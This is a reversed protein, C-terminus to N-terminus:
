ANGANRDKAVAVTAVGAVSEGAGRVGVAAAAVASARLAPNCVLIERRGEREIRVRGLETLVEIAADRRARDRLQGPGLRLVDRTSVDVGAVLWADLLRADSWAQPEDLMDLVRFAEELHWRALLVAREMTDPPIAGYAGEFVHLCGAIRAANEASKAAFDCVAAYDGFPKLQSEIEDHYYRWVAFAGSSFQLLPLKLRGRDDLALETDLLEWIRQHFASLNPMGTPPAQYFREGMTSLPAAVLYRALFGSGRTLGGGRQTLERLVSPQVMLSVTLRRGELHVSQAQKRDQHIAGGDWLRNLGAMFGLLSERGMGQSGTVMGGEDSWLAASPHGAALMFALSQPNVDEYRLRPAILEVPKELAHDALRQRLRAAEEPKKHVLSKIAAKLGDQEAAWGDLASKSRAIEERLLDARSLEWEGLPAALMKDAATKREGSQAIILFNLSLPGVLQDDRAVDALGQTALSVVALASSAVLAVPQQGYAQYERVAAGVMGPLAELPYAESHAAARDLSQPVPWETAFTASTATASPDAQVQSAQDICHRVAAAGVLRHLDNFDTAGKPRAAGFDPLALLGGVSRAAERAKALGPNGPTAVDDDACLILRLAPHRARLAQAVPLLNGANFAVVVAYGTSQFISAGTAYGEAICLVEDPEGIAFYGGSVRGGSLFKKNGDSAIFQLSILTAGDDVPVVLKGDHVRLGHVSIGKSRLYVHDDPATRAAEWLVAARREADIQRTADQEERERRIEAMRARHRSEEESSLKRGVDARWTESVNTRWDGYAGAPVADDHFVYWGADDGVTGNTPFRHLRGDAHIAEPPPLGADHIATRFQEIPNRM